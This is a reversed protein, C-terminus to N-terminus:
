SSSRNMVVEDALPQRFRFCGFGPDVLVGSPYSRAEFRFSARGGGDVLLRTSLRETETRLEVPFSAEGSGKNSVTGAM